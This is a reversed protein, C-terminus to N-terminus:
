DWWFYWYGSKLLMKSLNSVTQVGQWVIDPCYVYQERALRDASEQDSPPRSVLCEVVDGSLCAVEAGHKEHWYRSIATQVEAGPCENWGGAKLVSPNAL